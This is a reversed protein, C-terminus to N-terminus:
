SLAHCRMLLSFEYISLRINLTKFSAIVMVFMYEHGDKCRLQRIVRQENLQWKIM